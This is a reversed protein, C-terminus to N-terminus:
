LKGPLIRWGGEHREWRDEQALSTRWFRLPLGNKGVMHFRVRARGPGDVLFEEVEATLPENREFHAQVLAQALNAYYDTFEQDSRFYGRLLGDQFTALTNVRRNTFRDYFAQARVQFEVIAPDAVVQAGQAVDPPPGGGACAPGLAFALALLAARRLARARARTGSGAAAAGRLAAFPSATV